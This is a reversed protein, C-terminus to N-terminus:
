RRSSTSSTGVLSSSAPQMRSSATLKPELYALVLATCEDVFAEVDHPRDSAVLRQVLSEITVTVIRATLELDVDDRVVPGLWEAAAAVATDELAHIEVLLAAPRPSEEFLVRHLRRDEVHVAVMAAVVARVVVALSFADHPRPVQDLAGLVAQTGAHMHHRVLEVLIADKNPFYQYLSGVSMAAEAAIRNTTGAAYGHEAFVAAASGLIRARTEHARPQRPTKRPRLRKEAAHATM